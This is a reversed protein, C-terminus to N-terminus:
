ASFPPWAFFLLPFAHFLQLLKGAAKQGRGQQHARQRGPRLCGPFVIHLYGHGDARFILCLAVTRGPACRRRFLCHACLKGRQGIRLSSKLLQIRRTLVAAIVACFLVAIQVVIYIGVGKVVAGAVLGAVYIFARHLRHLKNHM